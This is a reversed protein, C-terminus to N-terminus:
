SASELTDALRLMDARQRQAAASPNNILAAAERRLALANRRAQTQHTDLGAEGKWAWPPADEARILGAAVAARVRARVGGEFTMDVHPAEENIEPGIRQLDSTSWRQLRRARRSSPM